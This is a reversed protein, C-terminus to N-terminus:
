SRVGNWRAALEARSACRTKLLIAKVHDKVTHLSIGLEAAIALNANGRGICASVERERPTLGASSALLARGDEARLRDIVVATQDGLQLASLRTPVAAARLLLARPTAGARARSALDHLVHASGSEVRLRDLGAVADPAHESHRVLRDTADLVLLGPGTADDHISRAAHALAARRLASAISPILRELGTLEARLFPGLAARRFLHLYGFCAGDVALAARLEDGFGLPVFIQRMRASRELEGSTSQWMSAIRKPGRHLERLRNFDNGEAEL